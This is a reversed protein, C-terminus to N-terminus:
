KWDKFIRSVFSGIEQCVSQLLGVGGSGDSGVEANCGDEYCCCYTATTKSISVSSDELCLNSTSLAGNKTCATSQCGRVVMEARVDRVSFCSLAGNLCEELNQNSVSQNLTM